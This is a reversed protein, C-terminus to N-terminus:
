CYNRSVFTLAASIEITFYSHRVEHCFKMGSMQLLARSDVLLHKFASLMRLSNDSSTKLKEFPLMRLDSTCFSLASM